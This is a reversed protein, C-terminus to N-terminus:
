IWGRDRAILVAQARDVADIKRYVNHLHTRITSVSLSLESAIQKYVKGEALGRLADVERVSLPCPDSSRPRAEGSHPFEYLLPALRERELGLKSAADVISDAPAADGQAYHVVLDALRIAAAHGGAKPTHHREVAAAVGRPFGWRRVLVAGVLAHDIGLERRECRVRADPGMRRDDLEEFQGYMESLVLRGVDHVLAAVALEDREGLRALEGIRDAAHRTAVAHRRFREYRDAAPSPSDFPDYIDISAVIERVGAASLAEIAQRVGGTRGKADAADGAARMVAITLAVDSEIAEALEGPSSAQRESAHLLRRRSEALAPLRSAADFATALRRGGQAGGRESTAAPKSVAGNTKGAKTKRAKARTQPRAPKRPPRAARKQPAPARRQKTAVQTVPM